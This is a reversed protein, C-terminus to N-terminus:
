EVDMKVLERLLGLEQRVTQEKEHCLVVFLPCRFGDRAWGVPKGTPIRQRLRHFASLARVRDLGHIATLRGAKPPFLEAVAVAKQWRSAWHPVRGLALELNMPDLSCGYSLDMMEARFGGVRPAMDLIRPQAELLVLDVHVPTSRLHLASVAQAVAQLIAENEEDTIRAPLSRDAVHFDAMGWRRAPTLEVVPTAILKGDEAVFADLSVEKGELFAEALFTEELEVGHRAAAASREQLLKRRRPQWDGPRDCRVILQSKFFNRPKLLAPYRIAPPSPDTPDAMRFAPNLHPAAKELAERFLLKDRLVFAQEPTVGPRKLLRNLLAHEMVRRERRNIIGVVRTRLPWRRIRDELEALDHRNYPIWYEVDEPSDIQEGHEMLCAAAYGFRGLRRALRQVGTFLVIDPDRRPM